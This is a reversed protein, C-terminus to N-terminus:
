WTQIVRARQLRVPLTHGILCMQDLAFLVVSEMGEQAALRVERRWATKRGGIGVLHSRNSKSFGLERGFAISKKSKTLDRGATYTFSETKLSDLKTPTWYEAAFNIARNLSPENVDTPYLVEFRCDAVNSQVYTRVNETFEGLLQRLLLVEEQYESPDEDPGSIVRMPRGYAEQFRAQTYEDYFPMGSGDSPFYWWQVEGFQLYPRLGVSAMLEAMERYVERWFGVSAPSFNTQLAPTSLWVAKGSPYRQALGAEASADGHQLEMSFAAVVELGLAKLARFYSASWDRAARNIRPTAGTDTCWVGDQGGTLTASAVVVRFDGTVPSATLTIRNGDSGMSRSIVRLRAGDVEARVATFGGNIQLEFARAVTEATDGVHVLHTLVSQAEDPLGVQGIRLEVIENPEPDGVFEIEVSAYSHGKRELEYFWMAGVYHNVRGKCGLSHIMWATREPALALSHDTDWDTALSLVASSCLEPLCESPKALELYDFYVVEGDNGCHTLEVQHSGLQVSGVPIRVLADEGMRQCDYVTRLAGDVSVALRGGEPVMRSGVFLTVEEDAKLDVTAKANPQTCWHITGGSYNGDEETWSGTYKVTPSDDEVRRSGPGAVRYQRREGTVTWNTVTVRFEGRQHEGVGMDAAYTWRMKRIANTPIRQGEVDVLNSFDLEIKWLSPSQGGEFRRWWCTWSETKAGSVYAYAGFRNGNHGSRNPDEHGGSYTLRITNGSRAAVVVNSFAGISDAIAQVITELTDGELVRYTHHEGQWAIGVYDGATPSGSLEFDATAASYSGEIPTAHDLLRVRYLREEGNQEAWVRLYPWDVTPYLTSDMPICNVRQECYSLKLGSFDGDPLYRFWPHEFVNDRNWEIVAWDFQQRWCGSVTFGNASADSLAAVASPRQFYCQLDRDPRLKELIEGM